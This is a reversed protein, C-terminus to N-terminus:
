WCCTIVPCAAIARTPVNELFEQGFAAIEPMVLTAKVEEREPISGVTPFHTSAKMIQHKSFKSTNVAKWIHKCHAVLQFMFTSIAGDM